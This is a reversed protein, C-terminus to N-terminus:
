LLKSRVIVREDYSESNADYNGGCTILTLQKKVDPLAKYQEKSAQKVSYSDVSVVEFEKWSKDGFQVRVKSGPKLEGLKAFIADDYRGLVHGDIISVGPEGPVVSGTYWGALHINTPVAIHNDETVGVRQICGSTGVSPLEIRRPLHAAVAYNACAEKIPTEDPKDIAQTVVQTPITPNPNSTAQHRQWFGWLGYALLGVALVIVATTKLQKGSFVM